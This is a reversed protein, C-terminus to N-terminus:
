QTEQARSKGDAETPTPSAPSSSVQPTRGNMGRGQHPRRTNYGALYDDLVVQMEGVTEFWTRRGESRFHEDLLTCHFREAIGNSQPRKVRTTRHDIEELQLFFEYPHQDPRGCYERGNDSLVVDIRANHAEFTPLVDTYLLHVFTVPRKSSYLRVRCYRSDCDIATQLYVKGMGKLTGVFFTDVAM